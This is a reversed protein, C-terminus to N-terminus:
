GMQNFGPTWAVYMFILNSLLLHYSLLSMPVGGWFWPFHSNSFVCLSIPLKVASAFPFPVILKVVHISCRNQRGLSLYRPFPSITWWPVSSKVRL